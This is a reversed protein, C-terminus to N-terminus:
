FNDEEDFAHAQAHGAAPGPSKYIAGCFRCWWRNQNKNQGLKVKHVFRCDLFIGADNRAKTLWHEVTGEHAGVATSSINAGLGECKAWLIYRIVSNSLRVGGERGKLAKPPSSKFEESLYM